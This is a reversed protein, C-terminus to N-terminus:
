AWGTIANWNRKSGGTRIPIAGSTRESVNKWVRDAPKPAMRASSLMLAREIAEVEARVKPSQLMAQEVERLEQETLSGTVYLELLGSAILEEENM